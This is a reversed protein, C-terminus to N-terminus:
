LLELLFEPQHVRIQLSAAILVLSNIREKALYLETLVM